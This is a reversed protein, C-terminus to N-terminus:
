HAADILRQAAVLRRTWKMTANKLIRKATKLTGYRQILEDRNRTLGCGREAEANPGPLSTPLVNYFEDCETV